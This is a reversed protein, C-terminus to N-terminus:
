VTRRNIGVYPKDMRRREPGHYAEGPVVGPTRVSPSPITRPDQYIMGAGGPYDGFVYAYGEIYAAHSPEAIRGHWGQSRWGTACADIDCAGHQNMVLAAQEAELEDDARVAVLAGGRRVGEAFVHADGDPIGCAMLASLPGGAMDMEEIEFGADSLARIAGRAQHADRMLGAVIFAM